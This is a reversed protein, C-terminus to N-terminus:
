DAAIVAAATHPEAAQQARANTPVLVGLIAFLILGHILQHRRITHFTTPEHSFSVAMIGKKFGPLASDHMSHPSVGNDSGTLRYVDRGGTEEIPYGILRYLAFLLHASIRGNDGHM